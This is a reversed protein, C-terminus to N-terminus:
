REEVYQILIGAEQQPDALGVLTGRSGTHPVADVARLGCQSAGALAAAVDDVRLALHHIGEGHRRLFRALDSDETLPELLEVMAPGAGFFATRVDRFLEDSRFALGLDKEFHPRAGDISRVVWGVHHVTSV